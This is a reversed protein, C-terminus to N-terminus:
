GLKIIIIIIVANIYQVEMHEISQVISQPLSLNSRM